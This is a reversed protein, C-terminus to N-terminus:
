SGLLVFTYSNPIVTCSGTTVTATTDIDYTGPSTYLHSALFTAGTPGGTVPVESTESGDGWQLTASFACGTTNNFNTFDVKVRPDHSSCRLVTAPVFTCATTRQTNVGQAVAASFPWWRLGNALLMYTLLVLLATGLAIFRTYPGESTDSMANSRAETPAISSETYIVCDTGSPVYRVPTRYFIAIRLSFNRM